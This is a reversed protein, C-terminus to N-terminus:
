ITPRQGRRVTSAASLLVTVLLASGPEPVAAVAASGVATGFNAAWVDYDLTDVVGDENADVAPLDLAEGDRWLTYDAADVFGDGNFDGVNKPEFADAPDWFVSDLYVTADTSGFLQISDLSAYTAGISGDGAAIWAEWDEDRRAQRSRSPRERSWSARRPM